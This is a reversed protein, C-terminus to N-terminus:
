LKRCDRLLALRCWCRTPTRNPNCPAQLWPRRAMWATPSWLIQPLMREVWLVLREVLPFSATCLFLMWSCLEATGPASSSSSTSRLMFIHKAPCIRSQPASTFCCYTLLISGSRRSCTLTQTSKGVPLYSIDGGSDHVLICSHNHISFPDAHFPLFGTSSIGLFQKLAKTAKYSQFTNLYLPYKWHLLHCSLLM